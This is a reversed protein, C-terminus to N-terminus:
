RLVFKLKHIKIKLFNGLTIGHVSLPFANFGFSPGHIVMAM